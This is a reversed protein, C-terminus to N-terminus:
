ENLGIPALRRLSGINAIALEGARQHRSREEAEMAQSLVMLKTQENQLMLQEASIRAQLDMVAKADTAGPIADILQQLSAFRASNVELARRSTVQFMAASSRAALLQEREQNSLRALQDPTLVANSNMVAQLQGSLASYAGSAGNIAAELSQWDPPLYNRQQGRLLNEMGRGGTMAEYQRKAQELQNRATDLQQKLTAIQEILQAIAGVDIVAWQAEAKPVIGLLAVLVILVLQKPVRM